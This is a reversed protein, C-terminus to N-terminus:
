MRNTMVVVGYGNIKTRNFLYNHVYIHSDRSGDSFVRNPRIPATGNDERSDYAFDNQELPAINDNLM